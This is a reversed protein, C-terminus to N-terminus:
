WPHAGAHAVSLVVGASLSTVKNSLGASLSSLQLDVRVFGEFVLDAHPPREAVAATAIGAWILAVSSTLWKSGWM